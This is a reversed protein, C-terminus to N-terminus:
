TCLLVPKPRGLGWCGSGCTPVSLVPDRTRRGSWGMGCGGKKLLPLPRVEVRGVGRELDEVKVEGKKTWTGVEEQTEPLSDSLCGVGPGSWVYGGRRLRPLPRVEVRGGVGGRGEEIKM